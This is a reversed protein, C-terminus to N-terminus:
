GHEGRIEDLELLASKLALEREVYGTDVPQVKVIERAAHIVREIAGATRLVALAKEGKIKAVDIEEEADM